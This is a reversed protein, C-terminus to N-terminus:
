SPHYVRRPLNYCAQSVGRSPRELRVARAKRGAGGRRARREALSALCADAVANAAYGDWTSPGEAGSSGPTSSASTPPRSAGASTRPRGARGAAAHGARGRGRLPHRLRLARQRVGRRRDARRERDRAPDLQPDRLGAPAQRSSRPARVTAAVIEEGLLWRTIDIEHVCSSTILMESTFAPPASPTATRATSSCRRASRASTSRAKCRRTARPRLPAHVRRTVLRRGAAVEAEVVRLCAEATTALPKECLVRSARRSARSCSSRTRPTSPPSSRGRRGRPRRDARAPRRVRARRRARGRRRRAGSRRRRGGRRARRRGGHRAHARPGRGDDGRRHRRRRRDQRHEYRPRSTCTARDHADADEPWRSTVVKGRTYFKVGEPGHIHHDGFLSDKWGGFSYFAMPVPIPVNIGIM